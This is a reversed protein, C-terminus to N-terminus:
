PTIREKQTYTNVFQIAKDREHLTLTIAKELPILLMEFFAKDCIPELSCGAQRALNVHRTIMSCADIIIEDWFLKRLSSKHEIIRITRISPNNQQYRDLLKRVIPTLNGKALDEEWDHADDHLQKATTYERFFQLLQVMQISDRAYGIYSLIGLVCLAGGLSKDAISYTHIDEYRISIQKGKIPLRRTVEEHNASDINKLIQRLFILFDMNDHFLEEFLYLMERLSSIAISLQEKKGEDDYFDDFITYAIWGLLNATGLDIIMSEPILKEKLHLHKTFYFPLLTIEKKTIADIFTTAKQTLDESDCIVLSRAKMLIKKELMHEYTDSSQTMHKQWLALSHLVCALTLAESGSYFMRDRKPNVGTYFPFPKALKKFPTKLLSIISSSLIDASVGLNLLSAVALATDLPTGWMDKSDRKNTLYTIMKQKNAGNKYVRSIFFMSVFENPYYPSSYDDSMIRTDIFSLINPLHIGIEELFFMINANVVVDCDLWLSDADQPDIIWTRYPGGVQSETKTLITIIQALAAGDLIDKQYGYLAALACMTDDLDDPYSLSKAQKSTRDWYNFSWFQSKQTLLYSAARDTIDHADKTPPLFMLLSLIVATSFVTDFHFPNTFKDPDDSSLTIFHGDSRQTKKLMGLGEHYFENIQRNIQDIM